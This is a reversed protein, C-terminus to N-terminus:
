RRDQRHQGHGQGHDRVHQRERCSHPRRHRSRRSADRLRPSKAFRLVGDEITFADADTGALTWSTIATGEPDVATYTAVAATGKEPYMIPGNADQAYIPNHLLAPLLLLALLIGALLVVRVIAANSSLNLMCHRVEGMKLPALGRRKTAYTYAQSFRADPCAPTLATLKLLAAMIKHASGLFAPM